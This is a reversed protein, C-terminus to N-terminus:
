AAYLLYQVQFQIPSVMWGDMGDEAIYVVTTCYSRGVAVTAEM